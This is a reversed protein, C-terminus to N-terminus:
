KRLLGARLDDHEDKTFGANYEKWAFWRAALIRYKLGSLCVNPIVRGAWHSRRIRRSIQHSCLRVHNAFWSRRLRLLNISAKFHSRQGYQHFITMVLSLLSGDMMIVAYWPGRMIVGLNWQKLDTLATHESWRVIQHHKWQRARGKEPVTVNLQLVTIGTDLSRYQWVLILGSASDDWYAM